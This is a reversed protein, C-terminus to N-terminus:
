ITLQSTKSISALTVSFDGGNALTSIPASFSSLRMLELKKTVPDQYYIAPSAHIGSVALLEDSNLALAKLTRSYGTEIGVYDVPVYTKNNMEEFMGVELSGQYRKNFNRTQFDFGWWMWGGFRSKWILFGGCPAQGANNIKTLIPQINGSTIPSFVTRLLETGTWRNELESLDLGLWEFENVPSNSTVNATYQEFMRGGIIPIKRINIPTTNVDSYVKFRFDENTIIQFNRAHTLMGEVDYNKYIDSNHIQQAIKMLDVTLPKGPNIDYIAYQEYITQSAGTEISLMEVDIYIKEANLSSENISVRFPEYLYCYSRSSTVTQGSITPSITIAM